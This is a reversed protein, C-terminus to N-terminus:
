ASTEQKSNHIADTQKYTSSAVNSSMWGNATELIGALQRLYTSLLHISGLSKQILKLVLLITVEHLLPLASSLPTLPNHQGQARNQKLSGPLPRSNNLFSFRTLVCCFHFPWRFIQHTFIPFNPPHIFKKKLHDNSFNKYALELTFKEQSIDTGPGHTATTALRRTNCCQKSNPFRQIQYLTRDISSIRENM